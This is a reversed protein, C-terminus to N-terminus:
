RKMMFRNMKLPKQFISYESNFYEGLDHEMILANLIYHHTIINQFQTGDDTGAVILM